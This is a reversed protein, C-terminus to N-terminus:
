IFYENEDTVIEGHTQDPDEVPAPEGTTRYAGKNHCLYRHLLFGLGALMLLVVVIVVGIVPFDTHTPLSTTPSMETASSLANSCVIQKISYATSTYVQSVAIHVTNHCFLRYSHSCQFM